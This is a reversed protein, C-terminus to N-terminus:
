VRQLDMELIHKQQLLHEWYKHPLCRLMHIKHDKIFYVLVTEKQNGEHGMGSRFLDGGAVKYEFKHLNENHRHEVNLIQNEALEIEKEKGSKIKDKIYHHTLILNKDLYPFLRAFHSFEEM